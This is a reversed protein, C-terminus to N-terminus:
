DVVVGDVEAAAAAVAGDGFVASSVLIAGASRQQRKHFIEASGPNSNNSLNPAMGDLEQATKSLSAKTIGYTGRMCEVILDEIYQFDKPTLRQFAVWQKTRRSVQGQVYPQGDQRHASVRCHHENHDMVALQNRCVYSDYSFKLRKPCYRLLLHSNFNEVRWTQRNTAYYKLSGLWTRNTVFSKIIGYAESDVTLWKKGEPVPLPGHPCEYMISTHVNTIHRLIFLWMTRMREKNGRCNASCQWFHNVISKIWPLVDKGSVKRGAEGLVQLIKKSKHWVDLSHKIDSYKTQEFLSIVAKSADTVVEVIKVGNRHLHAMGRSIMHCELKCANRGVERSDGIEMHIIDGSEYEMFVATAKNASFGPTDYRVDIGVCISRDKYKHLIGNMKRQYFSDIGQRYITQYRYFNSASGIAINAFRFAQAFPSWTLGSLLVVLQLLIQVASKGGYFHTSVWRHKHGAKCSYEYHVAAAVKRGRRISDPLIKEGCHCMQNQILILLKRESVIFKAEAALMHEESRDFTPNPALEDDSEDDDDDEDDSSDIDIMM